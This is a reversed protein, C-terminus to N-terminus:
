EEHGTDGQAFVSNHAQLTQGVFRTGGRRPGLARQAFLNGHQAIRQQNERPFRQSSATRRRKESGRPERSEQPDIM